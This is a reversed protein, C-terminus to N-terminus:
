PTRLAALPDVRAARRAPLYGAALATGLLLAAVGALTAPDTPAVGYLLQAILRALGLAAAAGAGVGLAAMGFGDRMMLRTVEGRRAGLAMRVGIERTRAGALFAIVSYVGIAALGLSLSSCLLLFLMAFRTPSAADDVVAQLPRVQSVPLAPDISRVMARVPAALAMPDGASKIALTMQSVAFGTSAHFQAHPLYWTEKTGAAIGNHHVDGVVGVVVSWPPNAAGRVRVRRGIPDRGPWFKRAMAESIVMVPPAGLRDAATFARGRTVAMGMTEFYGPTVAQWEGKARDGMPPVYGEVQLGYDGMQSALPLVRAAGAAVVGPLSRVQETLRDFFATVRLPDAYRARPLGVRLTLVQAPRFGLDVRLLAVFSRSLLGAGIAIVVAMAMEAAVLLGHARRRSADRGVEHGGGRLTRQPELRALQLVPLLGFILATAQALVFTFAMVRADLSVEGIRPLSAPALAVLFKVGAGAFCLGAAWALTAILMGEAMLQRVLRGRGAGLAVRIALEGGRRMGRALLLNALNACAILLMLGVAAVLVLLAPRLAGLLDDLVPIVLPEFRMEPPYVGRAALRGILLRLEAAARPATLGGRLRGVAYFGHDGGNPPVASEVSDGAPSKGSAGAASTSEAILPLWLASPTASGYDQPLRFGAPMVGVVLRPVGDVEVTRGLIAADRAFRRSWLEEGLIAPAAGGPQAEQDTFGRGLIPRVGLVQFLNPSVSAAGLRLPEEGGGRSGLTVERPDYIALDTFAHSRQRYYRYEGESVWTKPFERWRSWVTAVEDPREYPLPRLLMGEVLSVVTAAAGLGLALTLVAAATFRPSRALGRGAQRLDQLWRDM